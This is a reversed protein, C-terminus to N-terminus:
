QSGTIFNDPQKIIKLSKIDFLGNQYFEYGKLSDRATFHVLPRFLLFLGIDENLTRQALKLYHIKGPTDPTGGYLKMINALDIVAENIEHGPLSDRSLCNIILALSSEPNNELYPLYRFYVDAEAPNSVLEVRIGDRSLIDAFYEGLKQLSRGSIAVKIKEPRKKLYNLLSRGKDPNYEYPRGCSDDNIHPLCYIPIPIEGDFLIPLNKEDFRYFLSTTLIGRVSLESSPNPILAAIFPAQFIVSERSGGTTEVIGFSFFGDLKGSEFNIRMELESDYVKIDLRNGVDTLSDNRFILNRSNGADYLMSSLIGIKITHLTDIGAPEILAQCDEINLSDFFHNVPNSISIGPLSIEIVSQYIESGQSIISFQCGVYIDAETGYPFYLRDTKYQLIDTELVAAWNNNTFALLLLFISFIMISKNIM